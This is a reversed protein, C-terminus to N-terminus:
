MKLEEKLRKVAREVQVQTQAPDWLTCFVTSARDVREKNNLQSSIRREAESETKGDREVIRKVAEARPVVCVWVEHCQQEWGAELLVAADMVVVQCGARWLEQAKEGALRSIEPWVIQNLKELSGKESFVIGGLARRDISGDEAVVKEGFEEVIKNYAVEGPTYAQHGLKDCDVVGWGLGAMRRGVSSKGSASGGTLGIVYPGGSKDWSRLAPALRSGLLRIRGTSSSVKEEEFELQRGKDEVLEILLIDLENMGLERRKDNIALCGRETEESGVICELEPLVIAPGFPEQIEVANCEVDERVKHVFEKVGAIRAEVPTILEPLTKNKLLQAGTVGVTLKGTCRLLATTLLIKHGAHIRDFTGGLVVQSYIKGEQSEEVKGAQSTTVQGQQGPLDSLELVQQHSVDGNTSSLGITLDLGPAVGSYLLSTARSWLNITAPTLQSKLSPKLTLIVKTRGSGVDELTNLHQILSATKALLQGPGSIAVTLHKLPVM